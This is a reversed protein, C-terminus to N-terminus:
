ILGMAKMEEEQDKKSIYAIIKWDEGSRELIYSIEFTILREGTKEFNAGWEVAVLQHRSSLPKSDNISVLTMATMGTSANFQQLQMLWEILQEDNRFVASGNPGGAIFSEAYFSAIREPAGELAAAGYNRFFTEWAAHTQTM